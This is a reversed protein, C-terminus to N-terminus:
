SLGFFADVYEACRGSAVPQTSIIKVAEGPGRPDLKSELCMFHQRKAWCRRRIYASDSGLIRLGRLPDEECLSATKKLVQCGGATVTCQVRVGEMCSKNRCHDRPGASVISNLAELTSAKRAHQSVAMSGTHLITSDASAQDPQPLPGFEAGLQLRTCTGDGRNV